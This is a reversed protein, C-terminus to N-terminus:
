CLVRRHLFPGELRFSAGLSGVERERSEAGVRTAPCLIYHLATQLSNEEEKEVARSLERGRLTGGGGVEGRGGESGEGNERGLASVENIREATAEEEM